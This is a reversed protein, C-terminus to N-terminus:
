SAVVNALINAETTAADTDLLIRHKENSETARLTVFEGLGDSDTTMNNVKMLLGEVYGFLLFKGGKTKIIVGLEPGALENVLDRADASLDALHFDVELKWNAASNEEDVLENRGVVSGKRATVQYYGAGGSFVIDTIINGAGPTFSSVQGRNFLWFTDDCGPTEGPCPPRGIGRTLNCSPM